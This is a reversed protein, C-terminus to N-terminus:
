AHHTSHACLCSPDFLNIHGVYLYSTDHKLRTESVHALVAYGSINNLRYWVKRESVFVISVPVTRVLVGQNVPSSGRRGTRKGQVQVVLECPIIIGLCILLEALSTSLVNKNHSHPCLMHRSRNVDHRYFKGLTYQVSIPSYHHYSPSLSIFETIKDRSKNRKRTTANNSSLRYLWWWPRARTRCV